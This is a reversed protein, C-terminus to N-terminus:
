TPFERCAPCPRAIPKQPDRRDVLWGADNCNGCAIAERKGPPKQGVAFGTDSWTAYLDSDQPYPEGMRWEAPLNHKRKWEDLHYREIAPSPLAPATDQPARLLELKLEDYQALVESTRVVYSDRKAKIAWRFCEALHQDPIDELAYGYATVMQEIDAPVGQGQTLYAASILM